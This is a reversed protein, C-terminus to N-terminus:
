MEGKEKNINYLIIVKINQGLCARENVESKIRILYWFVLEQNKKKKKLFPINLKDLWRVM